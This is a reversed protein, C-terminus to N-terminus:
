GATMDIVVKGIARREAVDLLARAAQELPYSASVHPRIEGRALLDLLEARNRAMEEPANIGLPAMNYSTLEAGKLLLLNLPIRPIEGSAFGVCVFRGRWGTARIAQEALEGGVPDIVLDVGRAETIEKLREKLNERTYDVTQAAGYERCVALKAESSACAIVRAGLARAVDVSALGVGGGAGLVAVWKGPAVHGARLAGHGTMYVVGFAAAARADVGEPIRTLGAARLMVREAFAGVFLAGMVRDGPRLGEVGPGVERVTGALESGPTFPLPASMQYLDQMILVDPYNVAAAEVDIVVHGEMAKPEPVEEVRLTGPPGYERVM